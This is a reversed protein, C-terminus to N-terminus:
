GIKFNKVISVQIVSVIETYYDLFNGFRFNLYGVVGFMLREEFSFYSLESIPISNLPVPKFCSLTVKLEYLTAFNNITM